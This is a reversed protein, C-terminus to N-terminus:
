LGVVHVCFEDVGTHLVVLVGLAVMVLLLLLFLVDKWVTINM